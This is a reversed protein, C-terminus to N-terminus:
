SHSPVEQVENLCDSLREALIHLNENQCSMHTGPFVYDEVQQSHSIHRWNTQQTFGESSWFLTLKGSYPGPVYGAVVWRYMGSWQHRLADVPPNYAKLRSLLIGVSNHRHRGVERGNRDDEVSRASLSNDVKARYSPIRAYIYRLFWNLQKDQGLRLVSGVRSIARRVYKHPTPTAMDIAILLDIEQGEAQLQRAIEYAMLGGNCFGGLLYPGEPQITRLAQIHAAAMEEFTPPILLGEFNYPELVYFPQDADVSRALNLCYFGGGFWDGHLFFFPRRSGSAQVAVVPARPRTEEDGLIVDALHEVTAGAFLTALPIKKGYIHEIRNMLRVALLSHGGLSFFNDKLGIPHVNLLEEWIRILLHHVTMMPAVFTDEEVRRTPQPSPLARRNIKGNPHLPFGDLMTFTAPIMYHPLKDKLYSRLSHIDLSKGSNTVIYAILRKDGPTDERAMVVVERVSPHLRLVQEIEELEVRFGRIKVQHDIRGIFEITGDPLYRALDGTKYLRANTRQNFPHPIFRERTLEPCHLYERALGDGGIYLEGVVGIPVPQLHSNLIYTQTNAIPRGISPEERGGRKVLTYTSYTTDESPGYLNFVRNVTDQQYIRQALSNHLPEGALNVTHVSAPLANNYVLEALASPVTNILTVRSNSSLNPLDLINEVLIVSGGASLTVFLEFISLDFCISTSALVGALDEQTFVSLAWNTFAVTSRHAIAVGKPKGTSGSTYIIYALDDSTATNAPNDDSEQVLSRGCTDLCVIKAAHSPLREILQAQSLLVAVEADQLMFAIREQPYAPDLPVYAGGAKLVGLLAVIMDLSRRMCIGVLTGPMVGLSHLHHALQNAKSNLERYTLQREECTVAVADPTREVQSEFLQHLCQHMPFDQSTNNWEILMLQREADTLLPLEALQKDPAAVIGELITRLHGEMREITTADFLDTSYEFYGVLGEPRDELILSLDFKSTDTKIDMHTLTWGSPLVSAPPELMFLVQFFPNHGLDREPQLKKVLYEFPVDQHAYAELTEERVRGLLERFSMEGTLQTRMVLMNIFVGLLKQVEPRNRGGTATGVLIDHQGTYRFLLTKFAAIMMMYLTCGERNSLARLADTLSKSLMVPYTSGHYTSTLPRLRDTPLELTVPVEKLQEKWYSLHKDLVNHQLQERQWLAFDAYQLPLEPLPSPKGASFAEYLTRLETLFVQYISIGDFIIHHLTLYLRHERDDLQVLMARLLPAHALDFPQQGSKTALRVAEAEREVPPLYRLDIHPLLVTLSPHIRQVPQGDVLPFSTRWVEHRRIIEQFSRTLADVDLLGPLHLTVCENYVPIDPILQSLLWMQQQGSSLSAEDISTRRPITAERSKSQPLKGRVYKELLLKKAESLETTNQM